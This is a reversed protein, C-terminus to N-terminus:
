ASVKTTSTAEYQEQIWADVDDEYAVVRGGLKWLKPGVGTARYYRLTALPIRTKEAVEALTVIKRSM